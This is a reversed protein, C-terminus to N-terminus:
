RKEGGRRTRIQTLAARAAKRVKSKPDSRAAAELAPEAALDGIRALSQAAAERAMSGADHALRKCLDLQAAQEGLDGLALAAAARVRVDSHTLADRLAPLAAKGGRWGLWRAAKQAEGVDDGYLREIWEAPAIRERADAFRTRAKDAELFGQYIDEFAAARTDPLPEAQASPTAPAHATVRRVFDSARIVSAGAARARGTLEQDNTVVAYQGPQGRARLYSVIADDATQGEASFRVQVGPSSLDTAHIPPFRGSEFFVILPRSGARARYARLRDLLRLEDDPDALDIDPLVGILNHCDIILSM